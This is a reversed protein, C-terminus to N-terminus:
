SLVCNGHPVSSLRIILATSTQIEIPNNNSTQTKIKTHTPLKPTWRLFILLLRVNVHHLSLWRHEIKLKHVKAETLGKVQKNVLDMKAIVLFKSNSFSGHQFLLM